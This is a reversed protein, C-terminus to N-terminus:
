GDGGGEQQQRAAVCTPCLHMGYGVKRWGPADAERFTELKGPPTDRGSIGHTWQSCQDCVVDASYVISM